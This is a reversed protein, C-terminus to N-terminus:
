KFDYRSLKNEKNKIYEEGYAKYPFMEYGKPDVVTKVDFNLKHTRPLKSTNQPHLSGLVMLKRLEEKAEEEKRLNKLKIM